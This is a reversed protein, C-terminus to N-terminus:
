WGPKALLARTRGVVMPSKSTKLLRELSKRAAAARVDFTDLISLAEMVVRQRSSTLLELLEGSARLVEARDFRRLALLASVARHLNPHHAEVLHGRLAESKTPAIRSLAWAATRRITEEVDASGVSVVNRGGSTWRLKFSKPHKGRVAQVLGTVLASRGETMTQLERARAAIARATAYRCWPNSDRLGAVLERASGRGKVRCASLVSYFLKIEDISRKRKTQDLRELLSQVGKGDFPAISRAIRLVEVRVQPDPAEGLAFVAPVDGSSTPQSFRVLQEIERVRVLVEPGPQTRALASSKARVPHHEAEAVAKRSQSSQGPLAEHIGATLIILFPLTSKM